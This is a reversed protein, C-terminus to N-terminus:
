AKHKVVVQHLQTCLLSSNNQLNSSSSRCSSKRSNTLTQYLGQTGEYPFNVIAVVSQVQLGLKACKSLTMLRSWIQIVVITSRKNILHLSTKTRSTHISTYTINNKNAQESIVLIRPSILPIHANTPTIQYRGQPLSLLIRAAITKLM